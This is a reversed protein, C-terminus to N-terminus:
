PLELEDLWICIRDVERITTNLFNLRYDCKEREYEALELDRAYLKEKELINKLKERIATIENGLSKLTYIKDITEQIHSKDM